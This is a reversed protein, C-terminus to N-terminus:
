YKNINKFEAGVKLLYSASLALMSALIKCFILERSNITTKKEFSNSRFLIVFRYWFYDKKRNSLYEAFNLTRVLRAVNIQIHSHVEFYTYTKDAVYDSRLLQIIIIMSEFVKKDYM